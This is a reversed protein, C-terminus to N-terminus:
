RRRRPARQSARTPSTGGSTGGARGKATTRTPKKAAGPAAANRWAMTMAEGVIEGDASALDVMTCGQRGWAGSAPTFMVAHATMFASQQEPTLKVMGQRLDSSLTAFIRGNVRFDPHGMHAAEVADQLGLAIRRFDTSKM